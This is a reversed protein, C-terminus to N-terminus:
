YVQRQNGDGVHCSVVAQLELEPSDLVREQSEHTSCAYLASVSMYAPLGSMCMFYLYIKIFYFSNFSQRGRGAAWHPYCLCLAPEEWETNM